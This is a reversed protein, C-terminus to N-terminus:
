KKAHKEGEKDRLYRLFKLRKHPPLSAIKKKILLKKKEENSIKQREVMTSDLEERVAMRIDDNTVIPKSKVKKKIRFM